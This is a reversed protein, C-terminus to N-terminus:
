NLLTSFSLHCETRCTAGDSPQVAYAPPKQETYIYMMDTQIYLYYGLNTPRSVWLICFPLLSQNRSSFRHLVFFFSQSTSLHRHNPAETISEENTEEQNLIASPGYIKTNVGISQCKIRIICDDKHLHETWRTLKVWGWGNMPWIKDFLNNRTLWDGQSCGQQWKWCRM